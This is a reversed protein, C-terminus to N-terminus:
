LQVRIHHSIPNSLFLSPKGPAADLRFYYPKDYSGLLGEEPLIVKDTAKVKNAGNVDSYIMTVGTVSLQRSKREEIILKTLTDVDIDRKCKVKFESENDNGIAKVWVDFCSSMVEPKFIQLQFKHHRLKAMTAALRQPPLNKKM